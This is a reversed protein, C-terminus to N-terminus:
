PRTLRSPAQRYANDDRTVFRHEAETQTLPQVGGRCPTCKKEALTETM